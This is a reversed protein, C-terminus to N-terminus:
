TVVIGYTITAGVCQLHFQFPARACSKWGSNRELLVVLSGMINAVTRDTRQRDLKVHLTEPRVRYKSQIIAGASIVVCVPYRNVVSCRNFKTRISSYWLM